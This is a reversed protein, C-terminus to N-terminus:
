WLALSVHAPSTYDGSLFAYAVSPCPIRGNVGINYIAPFRSEAHCNGTIQSADSFALLLEMRRGTGHGATSGVRGSADASGSPQASRNPPNQSRTRSATDRSARADQYASAASPPSPRGSACSCSTPRGPTRVSPPSGTNATRRRSRNGGAGSASRASNASGSAHGPRRLHFPAVAPRSPRPPVPTLHPSARWGQVRSRRYSPLGLRDGERQVRAEVM